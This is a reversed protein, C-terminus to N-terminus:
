RRTRRRRWARVGFGALGVAALALTSPEPVDTVQVNIPVNQYPSWVAPDSGRPVIGTVYSFLFPDASVQYLHNGLRLSQTAPDAYTVNLTTGQMHSVAQNFSLQEMMYLTGPELIGYGRTGSFSGSLTITGSQGSAADTLRLSLGFTSCGAVNLGLGGIVDGYSYVPTVVRMSYGTITASDQTAGLANAFGVTIYPSPPGATVTGQYSWEIKEACAKPIVMFWAALLALVVLRPFQTFM